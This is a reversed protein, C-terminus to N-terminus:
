GRKIADAMRSAAVDMDRFVSPNPLFDRLKPDLFGSAEDLTVGRAALSRAILDPLAHRQALALALREDCARAIWRKGTASQEVGLFADSPVIDTALPHSM